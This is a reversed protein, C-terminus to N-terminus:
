RRRTSSRTQMPQNHAFLREAFGKRKEKPKSKPKLKAEPRSKPTPASAKREPRSKPKPPEKKADPKRGGKLNLKRPAGKVLNPFAVQLGVLTSDEKDSKKESRVPGKAM